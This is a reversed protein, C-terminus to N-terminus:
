RGGSGLLMMVFGAVAIAGLGLLMAGVHFLNMKWGGSM